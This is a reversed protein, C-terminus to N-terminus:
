RDFVRLFVVGLPGVIVVGYPCAVGARMFGCAGTM